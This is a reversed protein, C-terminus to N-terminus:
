VHMCHIQGGKGETEREEEVGLEEPVKRVLVAEEQESNSIM